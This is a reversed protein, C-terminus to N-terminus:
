CLERVANILSRSNWGVIRDASRRVASSIRTSGRPVVGIIPKARNYEYEAIEIEQQIWDSYTAYVGALIVVGHSLRIRQEIANRLASASGTTHIPDDRPVSLDRYSFSEQNRLLRRLRIHARNYSWSHSIFLNYTM